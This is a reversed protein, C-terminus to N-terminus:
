SGDVQAGLELVAEIRGLGGWELWCGFAGESGVDVGGEEEHEAEGCAFVYPQDEGWRREGGSAGFFVVSHYIEEVFFGGFEGDDLGEGCVWVPGGV